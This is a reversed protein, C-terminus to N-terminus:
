KHINRHPFTTNKVVINKSTAFNVTRVGNHNSDQHLGENGITSKFIYYRRVKANFEGLLINTHYKPFLYFVQELEV